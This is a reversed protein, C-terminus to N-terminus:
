GVRPHDQITGDAYNEFICSIVRKVAAVTSRFQPVILIESPSLVWIDFTSGDSYDMVALSIYPNGHIVSVSANDLKRMAGIFKANEELGDFQEYDFHIALPKVTL